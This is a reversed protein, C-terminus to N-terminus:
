RLTYADPSNMTAAAVMTLSALGIRDFRPDAPAVGISLLRDVDDTARALRAAEAERYATLAALEAPLPRRRTALRFVNEIQAQSDAGTLVAREAMKRYAEMFQPDNLLVLAQLPTNSVTRAVTAVNRDAMDFILMSPPQANRKIYTYMSRRHFQDPTVDQETPYINAGLGNGEWVGDPQYPFVADGGVKQQLLGSAFLAADRIMEAPLRYRPGRALLQNVPDRAYLEESVNSSQRYTASMVILKQMHAIDWGSRQFEIALWDLLEPHTPNAGQTGFDQVTGVLGNGFHLQWLRNVFVRATLPNDEHLLWNALDIRKKLPKGDDVAFVRTPIGPPVEELYKDYIGRDLIYNPRDVPADAAVLLQPIVAEAKSESTRAARLQDKAAIMREDRAALVDVLQKGLRDSDMGEVAKPDHLYLVELPSLAKGFVRIEDIAGDIFEEQARRTGFALGFSSGLLSHSERPMSTRTLRDRYVQTELERGDVFLRV